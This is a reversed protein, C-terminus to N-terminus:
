CQKVVCGCVIAIGDPTQVRETCCDYKSHFDVSKIGIAQWQTAKESIMTM